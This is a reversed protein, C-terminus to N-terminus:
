HAAVNLCYLTRAIADLIVAVNTTNSAYRGVTEVTFERPLCLQMVAHEYLVHPQSSSFLCIGPTPNHELWAIITDARTPRKLSGDAAQKAPANVFLCPVKAMDAPLETQDLVMQMMELETKPLSGQLSWNQKRPWNIVTGELLEKESEVTPDLPREGGLFVLSNFRVGSHWQEVLFALRMRVREALAGLVVGYDYQTHMPSITDIIGMSKLTQFLQDKNDATYEAMQWREQNPSRLWAKQTAATIDALTGNNHVGTLNLLHLLAPQAVRSNGVLNMRTFQDAQTTWEGSYLFSTISLIGLLLIHITRM